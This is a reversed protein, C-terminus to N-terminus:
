EKHRLFILKTDSKFADTHKRGDQLAFNTYTQFGSSYPEKEVKTWVSKKRDSVKYFRDGIQLESITTATNREM